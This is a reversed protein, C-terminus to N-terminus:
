YEREGNSMNYKRGGYESYGDEDVRDIERGYSDRVSYNYQNKSKSSGGGGSALAGLCLMACALIFVIQLAMTTFVITPLLCVAWLPIIALFNLICDNKIADVLYLIFFIINGIILILIVIDTWSEIWFGCLMAASIGFCLFKAHIGAFSSGHLMGSTTGMLAAWLLFVLILFGIVLLISVFWNLDWSDFDGETFFAIYSLVAGNIFTVSYTLWLPITDDDDSDIYSIGMGGAILTLICGVVILWTPCETRQQSNYLNIISLTLDQKEVILDDIDTKKRVKYRNTESEIYKSRVFGTDGQMSVVKSWEDNYYEVNALQTAKKLRTITKAKQKPEKRMYVAVKCNDIHYTTSTDWIWEDSDDCSTLLGSLLVSMTILLAKPFSFFNNKTFM